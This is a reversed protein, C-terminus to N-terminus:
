SGFDEEDEEDIDHRIVAIMPVRDRITSVLMVDAECEPCTEIDGDVDVAIAAPVSQALYANLHCEGAKSQARLVTGCNPCKFVVEDFCGM